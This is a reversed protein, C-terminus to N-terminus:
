AKDKTEKSKSKDIIEVYGISELYKASREEVSLQEGKTNGDVIADLVEVKVKAM